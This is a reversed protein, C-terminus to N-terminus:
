SINFERAVQVIVDVYSRDLEQVEVTLGEFVVLSKHDSRARPGNTWVAWADHVHKLTTGTGTTLVLLTYFDLLESGCDTLLEALRDKVVQIYNM